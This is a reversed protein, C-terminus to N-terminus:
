HGHYMGKIEKRKVLYNAQKTPAATPTRGRNVSNVPHFYTLIRNCMQTNMNKHFNHTNEQWLDSSKNVSAAQLYETIWYSHESPEPWILAVSQSCTSILYLIATTMITMIATKHWKYRKSMQWVSTEQFRHLFLQLLPSACASAVPLEQDTPTKLEGM